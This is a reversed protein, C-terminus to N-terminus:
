AGEPSSNTQTHQFFGPDGWGWIPQFVLHLLLMHETVQSNVYGFSALSIMWFVTSGNINM